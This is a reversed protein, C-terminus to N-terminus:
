GEKRIGLSSELEKLYRDMESLEEIELMESAIRESQEITIGRLLDRIPRLRSPSLSLKRIGLGLYFPVMLPDGASDGCVSLEGINEKAGEAIMSLTRLVVPHHSRYLESLRENTRDVALMYMILDNTGISLFETQAALERITIVASPLEIMAGVKPSTCHPVGEKELELRAQEVFERGRAVGDPSAVMPFM